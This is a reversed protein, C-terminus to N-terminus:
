SRAGAVKSGLSSYRTDMSFSIEHVGSDPQFHHCFSFPKGRGPILNQNNLGYGTVIIGTVYQLVGIADTQSLTNIHLQPTFTVVQFTGATLYKSVEYM